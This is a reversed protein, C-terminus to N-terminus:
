LSPLLEVAAVQDAGVATPKGYVELLMRESKWGGAKAVAHVPVGADLMATAWYKCLSHFTVGRVKALGRVSTFGDSLKGPNIPKKAGGIVYTDAPGPRGLVAVLVALNRGEVRAIREEGTKTGKISIKGQVETVAREIVVTGRRLNIDSWKLAAVEGARARTLVSLAIARDMDHGFTKAANLLRGVEAATPVRNLSKTAAPAVAVTAPSAGIYDRRVALSLASGILAASRRVTNDSLTEGWVNYASELDRATLARVPIHGLTPAIRREVERRNDFATKPAWRKGRATRGQDLWETLVEGFTPGDPAPKPKPPDIVLRRARREAQTRTIPETRSGLTREVQRGDIRVRYCWVGSRPATEKLSGAGYAGVSEGPRRGV